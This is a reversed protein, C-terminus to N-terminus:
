KPSSKLTNSLMIYIVVLQAFLESSLCINQIGCTCVNGKHLNQIGNYRILFCFCRWGMEYPYQENLRCMQTPGKGLVQVQLRFYGICLNAECTSNFYRSTSVKSQISVLSSTTPDNLNPNWQLNMLSGSFFIDKRYMPGQLKADGNNHHYTPKLYESAHLRQTGNSHTQRLFETSRISKRTFFCFQFILGAQSNYPILQKADCLSLFVFLVCHEYM